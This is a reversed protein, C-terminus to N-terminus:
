DYAPTHCCKPEVGFARATLDAMDTANPNFKVNGAQLAPIHHDTTLRLDYTTLPLDYAPTHCCEPEVVFARATLDAM